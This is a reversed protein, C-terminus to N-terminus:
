DWIIARKEVTGRIVSESIENPDYQVVLRYDSPGGQEPREKSPKWPEVLTMEVNSVGKLQKIKTEIDNGILIFQTLPYTIKWEAVSPNKSECGTIIFAAFAVVVFVFRKKM